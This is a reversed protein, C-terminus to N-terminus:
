LEPLTATRGKNQEQLWAMLPAYYELMARASLDSGTKERLLSRWDVTNGKSLISWLFRGVEKNGYYDTAHPDEHLIERAIHDHLQHLLVYSLAYDYYAAPDDTIHTKSAADCYEEGRTEPPVIGQYHLKMEWWRQNYQDEPLPQSYLEDEFHTMVGCSWPMFVVTNMAEYLMKQMPDVQATSDILGRDVLFPKQMSALGMLSGIGEHFAPNAGRRLLPPVDPNTYAIYYYVHGLEHHMTEWWEANPEVSALVRVDHNLDM